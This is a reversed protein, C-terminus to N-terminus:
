GVRAVVQEYPVDRSLLGIDRAFRNMSQVTAKSISPDYFPADRAVLEAILGAEAPPFVKKGVETARAPNERLAVQARHVARLAAAAAKPNESITRETAVLAPFTYGKADEPGDRRADVVVVGYGGRVAVEAGM